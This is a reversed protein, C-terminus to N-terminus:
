VEAPSRKLLLQAAIELLDAMYLRCSLAPVKLTSGGCLLLM